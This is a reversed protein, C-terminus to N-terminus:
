LLEGKINLIAQGISINHQIHGDEYYLSCNLNKDVTLTLNFDFTFQLKTQNIYHLLESEVIINNNNMETIFDFLQEM